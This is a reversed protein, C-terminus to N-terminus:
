RLVRGRVKEYVQWFKRLRDEVRADIKVPSYASQVYLQTLERAEDQLAALEKPFSDLFEYPTQAADRPVGMDYALACLADYSTEIIARPDGHTGHELRKLPNVYRASHAISKDVRIRRKREKRTPLRAFKQLVKDLWNFLRVVWQPFYTRNRAITAAAMGVGRIGTYALFLGLAILVVTGVRQMFRAQELQEVAPTVVSQLEFTSARTWYDTEHEAVYALEPRPPMPLAAAGFAVVIVMVSGLSLWFLGIGKPLAVRRARFYERLGGLSTLMLLTLAAVTYCGVYFHGAYIMPLGGHQIVRMGLAFVIMVPISFYFVSIGPHRKQLRQTAELPAKPQKKEPPKWELPDIADLTTEPMTRKPEKAKSAKLMKRATGTLIGVDGASRNEDICCEHTLRNTLWWIFFVVTLNFPLQAGPSSMFGKAVSGVGYWSTSAVTYLVVAVFLGGIYIYSEDTGDRAILRNLAVIGVVFVTAFLRLNNDHVETYVYRVDLLFYVAAWVMILIMFPTMFDIFTDAATRHEYKTVRMVGKGGTLSNFDTREAPKDARQERTPAATLSAFDSPGENLLSELDTRQGSGNGGSGDSGNPHSKM